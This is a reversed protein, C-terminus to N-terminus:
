KDEYRSMISSVTGDEHLSRLASDLDNVQSLNMSAKSYMLYADSEVAGPLLLKLTVKDSIESQNILYRTSILGGLMADVRHAKLLDLTTEENSVWLLQRHFTNEDLLRAYESSYINGRVVAILVNFDNLDSLRTITADALPSDTHVFLGNYGPRFPVASFMAFSEREPLYTAAMLVDLEGRQLNILSRKWPYKQFQVSYGAREAVARFLEIDLGTPPQGQLIIQFPPWHEIGVRLTKDAAM